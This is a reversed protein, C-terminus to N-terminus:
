SGNSDAAQRRRAAIFSAICMAVLGWCIVAMLLIAALAATNV